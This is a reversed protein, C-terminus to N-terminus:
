AVGQPALCRGCLALIAEQAAPPVWSYVGHCLIYDFTGLDGPLELISAARLEVNALGLQEAAQRGMAIQAPSLDVGLFSAGPLAVALPLLNNGMGCGLELVRCSSPPAPTMGFLAARTALFGPHLTAFPAGAYPVTDYSTPERTTSM